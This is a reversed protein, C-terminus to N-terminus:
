GGAKEQELHNYLNKVGVKRVWARLQQMGTALTMVFESPRMGPYEQKINQRMAAETAGWDIRRESKFVVADSLKMEDEKDNRKGM